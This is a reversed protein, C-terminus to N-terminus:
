APPRLFNLTTSSCLKLTRVSALRNSAAPDLLAEATSCILTYTVEATCRPSAAILILPSGRQRLM